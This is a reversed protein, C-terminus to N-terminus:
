SNILKEVIKKINDIKNTSAKTIDVIVNKNIELGRNEVFFCLFGAAIDNNTYKDIDPNSPVLNWYDVVSNIDDENWNFEVCFKRIIEEVTFITIKQEYVYGCQFDTYKSIAGLSTRTDLGLARGITEVSLHINLQESAKHICVLCLQEKCPKNRPMQIDMQNDFIDIARELIVSDIKVKELIARINGRSRKSM